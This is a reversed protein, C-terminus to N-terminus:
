QKRRRKIRRYARRAGQCRHAAFSPNNTMPRATVSQNHAARCPRTVPSPAPQKNLDPIARSKQWHRFVTNPHNLALQRNTALTERWKEVADIHDLLELLRSRTAKDAVKDLKTTALWRSCAAAYRKGEPKHAHAERMAETRGILHARGVAVWDGWAAGAVLRAAAAQAREIIQTDAHTTGSLGDDQQDTARKARLEAVFDDPGRRHQYSSAPAATTIGTQEV